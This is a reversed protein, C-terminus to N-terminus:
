SSTPINLYKKDFTPIVHAPVSLIGHKAFYEMIFCLIHSCGIIGKGNKGINDRQLSKSNYAVEDLINKIDNDTVSLASDQGM